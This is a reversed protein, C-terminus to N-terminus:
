QFGGSLVQKQGVLLDQQMFFPLGSAGGPVKFSAICCSAQFGSTWSWTPNVASAATQIIYALGFAFSQNSLSSIRDTIIFSSDIAAATAFGTNLNTEASCVVLENAFNPTISGPLIASPSGSNQSGNEIDFPSSVSGSFAAMACGSYTSAGATAFTHGTGVIAGQCYFLQSAGDSATSQKTLATWTNGKSDTFTPTTGTLGAVVAVLLDAGTTNIAGSTAGNIGGQVAVNAVLAYAM